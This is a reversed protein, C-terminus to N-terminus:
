VMHLLVFEKGMLKTPLRLFIVVWYLLLLNQNVWSAFVLAFSESCHDLYSLKGRKQWIFWIHCTWVLLDPIQSRTLIHDGGLSFGKVEITSLEVFLFYRHKGFM